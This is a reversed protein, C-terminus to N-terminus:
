LIEQCRSPEVISSNSNIIRATTIFFDSVESYAQCVMEVVREYLKAKSKPHIYGDKRLEDVQGKIITLLGPEEETGVLGKGATTTQGKHLQGEIKSFQKTLAKQQKHLKKCIKSDPDSHLCKRIQGVGGELDGLAYYTTASILMHPHTDGPKLHLVHQLDSMGELEEGQEFRCYSRLERLSSVRTAIQIAVGSQQICDEWRGAEKAEQAITVAGEAANLEMVEESDPAKNAALYETRAGDWDAVKSKIKALQLHAGEFGPKLNLVQNFDDTAQSTRGLSLYTTARKFFTLYNSPDRAIAADYYVLAESTEGRSLHSQASSLLDSVPQDSPIDTSTLATTTTALLGAAVALASFRFHM